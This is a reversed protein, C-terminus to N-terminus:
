PDDVLNSLFPRGCFIHANPVVDLALGVWMQLAESASWPEMNFYERGCKNFWGLGDFHPSAVNVVFFARYYKLVRAPESLTENLDVLAWIRSPYTEFCINLYWELQNPYALESVGGEHFLIAYTSDIQLATPLRLALRRM